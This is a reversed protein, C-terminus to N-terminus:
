SDRTASCLKSVDFVSFNFEKKTAGLSSALDILGPNLPPILRIKHRNKSKLLQCLEVSNSPMREGYINCIKGEFNSRWLIAYSNPYYYQLGLTEDSLLIADKDLRAAGAKKQSYDYHAYQYFECTSIMLSVNLLIFLAIIVIGLNSSIKRKLMLAITFAVALIFFYMEAYIIIFYRSPLFRKSAVLLEYAGISFATIILAFQLWLYM